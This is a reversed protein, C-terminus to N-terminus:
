APAAPTVSIRPKDSSLVSEVPDPNGLPATMAITITKTNNTANPMTPTAM